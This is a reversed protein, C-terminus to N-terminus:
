AELIELLSAVSCQHFQEFPTYYAINKEIRTTEQELYSQKNQSYKNVMVEVLHEISTFTEFFYSLDQLLIVLGNM